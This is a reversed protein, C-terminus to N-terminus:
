SAFPGLGSTQAAALVGGVPRFQETAPRRERGWGWPRPGLIQRLHSLSNRHRPWNKPLFSQRCEWCCSEEEGIRESGTCRAINRVKTALPSTLGAISTARPHGYRANLPPSHYPVSPGRLRGNHCAEAALRRSQSRRAGGFIAMGEVTRGQSQQGQMRANGMGTHAIGRPRQYAGRALARAPSHPSAHATARYPVLLPPALRIQHSGIDM